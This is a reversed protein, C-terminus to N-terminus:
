PDDSATVRKHKLGTDRKQHPAPFPLLQLRGLLVHEVLQLAPAAHQGDAVDPLAVAPGVGAPGGVLGARLLPLEEEFHETLCIHRRRAFEAPFRQHHRKNKPLILISIVEQVSPISKAPRCVPLFLISAFANTGRQQVECLHKFTQCLYECHKYFLPTLLWWVAPPCPPFSSYMHLAHTHSGLSKIYHVRYEKQITSVTSSLFIVIIKLVQSHLQTCLFRFLKFIFRVCYPSRISIRGEPAQIKIQKRTIM